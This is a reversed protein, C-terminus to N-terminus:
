DLDISSKHNKGEEIECIYIAAHVLNIELIQPECSNGVQGMQIM